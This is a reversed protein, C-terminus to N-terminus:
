EGSAAYEFPHEALVARMNIQSFLAELFTGFRHLASKLETPDKAEKLEHVFREFAEWDKFMLHAMSGAQFSDLRALLPTLPRQDAEQEIRRVHELLLWLDRRLVLSQELRTRFNQFLRVGDFAPDF